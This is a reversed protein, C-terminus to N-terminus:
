LLVPHEEHFGCFFMPYSMSFSASYFNQPHDPLFLLVEPMITLREAGAPSSVLVM